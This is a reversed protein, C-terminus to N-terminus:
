NNRRREAQCFFSACINSGEYPESVDNTYREFQELVTTEYIIELAQILKAKQNRQPHYKGTIQNSHTTRSM